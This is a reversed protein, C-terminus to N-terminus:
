FILLDEESVKANMAILDGMINVERPKKLLLERNKNFEQMYKIRETELRHNEIKQRDTERSVM